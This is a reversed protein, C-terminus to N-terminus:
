QRIGTAVISRKEQHLLFLPIRCKPSQDKDVHASIGTMQFCSSGAADKSWM